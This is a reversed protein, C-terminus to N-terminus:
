DSSLVLSFFSFSFARGYKSNIFRLFIDRNCNSYNLFFSLLPLSLSTIPPFPTDFSNVAGVLMTPSPM